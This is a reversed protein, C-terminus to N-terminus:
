RSLGGLVGLPIGILLAKVAYFLSELRVMRNFERNTMGVSRLMAFEKSRLRMNTTITNFINTLGILSIVLIFGYVFIQILLSFSNMM